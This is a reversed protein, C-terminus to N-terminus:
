MDELDALVNPVSVDAAIVIKLLFTYIYLCLSVFLVIQGAEGHKPCGFLLETDM